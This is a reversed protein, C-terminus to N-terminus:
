IKMRSYMRRLIRYSSNPVFYLIIRSHLLTSHCSRGEKITDNHSHWALYWKNISFHIIKISIKGLIFWPLKDSWCFYDSLIYITLSLIHTNLCMNSNHFAQITQSVSLMEVNLANRLDAINFLHSIKINHLSMHWYKSSKYLETLQYNKWIFILM